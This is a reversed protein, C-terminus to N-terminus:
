YSMTNIEDSFFRNVKSDTLKIHNLQKEIALAREEDHETVVLYDKFWDM